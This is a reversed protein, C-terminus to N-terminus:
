KTPRSPSAVREWYEEAEVLRPDVRQGKHEVAPEYAAVLYRWKVHAIMVRPDACIRFGAERIRECLHFDETARHTSEMYLNILKPPENSVIVPMSHLPKLERLLRRSFAVGGFAGGKVEWPLHASRSNGSEDEDTLMVGSNIDQTPWIVADYGRHRCDELYDVALGIPTRMATDSDSQIHWDPDFAKAQDWLMSRSMDIRGPIANLMPPLMQMDSGAYRCLWELWAGVAAADVWRSCPMGPAVRIPTARTV